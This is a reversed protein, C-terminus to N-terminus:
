REDKQRGDRGGAVGRRRRVGRMGAEAEERAGCRATRVSSSRRGTLEAKGGVAFM